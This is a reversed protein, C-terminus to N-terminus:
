VSLRVQWRPQPTLLLFWLLACRCCRTALLEGFHRASTKGRKIARASCRSANGCTRAFLTCSRASRECRHQYM